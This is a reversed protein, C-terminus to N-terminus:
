KWYNRYHLARRVFPNRLYNRPHRYEYKLVWSTCCRVMSPLQRRKLLRVKM